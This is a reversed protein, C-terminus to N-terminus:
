VVRWHKIWPAQDQMQHYSGAHAFMVPDHEAFFLVYSLYPQFESSFFSTLYRINSMGAVLMAPIGAQKLTERAKQAREERMRVFNIGERLDTCDGGFFLRSAMKVM